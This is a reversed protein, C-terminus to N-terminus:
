GASPASSRRADERRQALERQQVRRVILEYLRYAFPLKAGVPTAHPTSLRVQASRRSRGRSLRQADLVAHGAAVDVRVEAIAAIM